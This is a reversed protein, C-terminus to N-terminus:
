KVRLRRDLQLLAKGIATVLVMAAVAEVVGAGTITGMIVAYLAGVAVNQVAAYEEALLFYISGMVLVTNVMSGAFGVIPLALLDTAKCKKLGRWLWGAAVGIFIRCGVSIWIAKLAGPLGTTSFFPSFIFSTPTPAVTSSIMSCLGFVAGLMGGASPGYLIAGVIVPIHVTTAKIVGIPILGLPTSALLMIVASMVAVGVMKHTDHKRTKM